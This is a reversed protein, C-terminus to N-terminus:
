DNMVESGRNMRPKKKNCERLAGDDVWRTLKARPLREGCLSFWIAVREFWKPRNHAWYLHVIM